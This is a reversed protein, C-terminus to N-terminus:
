GARLVADIIVDVKRAVYEIYGALRRWHGVWPEPVGELAKTAEAVAILRHSCQSIARSLSGPDISPDCIHMERLLEIGALHHRFMTGHDNGPLELCHEFDFVLLKGLDWALNPNLSTRDSNAVLLDFAMLDAYGEIQHLNFPWGSALGRVPELYEIYRAGAATRDIIGMDYTSEIQAAVGATLDVIVPAASHLGAQSALWTCLTECVLNETALGNRRSAVKIQCTVLDGAGGRCEMILPLTQGQASHGLLQIAQLREIV